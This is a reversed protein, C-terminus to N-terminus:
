GAFFGIWCPMWKIELTTNSLLPNYMVEETVLSSILLCTFSKNSCSAIQGLIDCRPESKINTDLFSPVHCIHTSNQAKFLIVILFLYGRGLISSKISWIRPAVKKELSFKFDLYWWTHIWFFSVHFINLVFCPKNLLNTTGKPKHLVGVVKM